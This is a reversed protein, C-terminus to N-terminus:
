GLLAATSACYAQYYNLSLTVYASPDSIPPEKPSDKKPILIIHTENLNPDLQGSYFFTKVLSIVKPGVTDWYHRFFFSTLGDPGLVKQPGISKVADWIEANTIPNLLTFQNSSSM